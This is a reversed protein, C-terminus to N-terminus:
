YDYLINARFVNTGTLKKRRYALGTDKRTGISRHSLDLIVFSNTRLQM